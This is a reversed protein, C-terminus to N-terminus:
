SAPKQKYITRPQCIKDITLLDLTKQPCIKDNSKEDFWRTEQLQDNMLTNNKKNVSQTM